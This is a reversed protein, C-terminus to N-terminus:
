NYGHYKRSPDRERNPPAWEGNEAEAYRDLLRDVFQRKLEHGSPHAEITDWLVRDYGQEAVALLGQVARFAEAVDAAIFSVSRDSYDVGPVRELLSLSAPHVARFEVRLPPELRMARARLRNQIARRASERMQAAVEEAPRLEAGDAGEAKKVTVYEIWPMTDLDRALVDDGSAFIVPVGVRGWSYAVVETETVWAGNLRLKTGLYMTHSIFGASGTKAHMGVVAVADYLGAGTLDAYADFPADRLIHQARSDLREPPLDPHPNGSGHGDVVHVVDAGREFLGEIVANVDTVLRDQGRRYPDTRSFTTMRWDDIGSLGEMDYYVLVKVTGDGERAPVAPRSASGAATSEIVEGTGILGKSVATSKSGEIRRFDHFYSPLGEEQFSEVGTQLQYHIHPFSTDGSLGMQAILQGALVKDGQKVRVSDLKLHAVLSFEGNQHDIIVYNGSFTKPNDTTVADSYVVKGEVVPNEPMDNVTEAIVGDGPSYVPKGFGFWDEMREIEGDHLEGAENVTSFDYAYRISNTTAGLQKLIPHDLNVRRHHAYFDHGDDVIIRGRLPLVLRTKTEYVEPTVTTEAHLTEGNESTLIFEYRLQALSLDSDFTHFPNFVFLSGGGELEAKPLTHMSPSVANRDVRLRRLLRGEEDFASMRILELRLHDDTPNELMFDFNLFQNTAGKEVYVVQPHVTVRLPTQWPSVFITALILMILM